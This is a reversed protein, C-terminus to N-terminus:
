NATAIKLDPVLNNLVLFDGVASCEPMALTLDDAVVTGAQSTLTEGLIERGCTLDTVAAEVVITPATDAPFTYVEALMPREASDDGLLSLFGTAGDAVPRQPTAASVHGATGFAAGNEFAHVQFADNGQWQVGFRVLRALDPLEVRASVTEGDAFLVSVEGSTEFGPLVAFLAGSASTLGTVALGAHRLVVRQGSHCPALLTLGIMASPQAILDLQMTCDPGPAPDAALKPDPLTIPPLTVPPLTVAPAPDIAALVLPAPEPTVPVAPEAIAPTVKALLPRAPVTEVPGAALPVIATPKPEAAAVQATSGLGNQAIHGAGLAIAVVAIALSLKRATKM